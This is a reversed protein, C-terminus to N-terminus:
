ALAWWVTAWLAGAAVAAIALRLEIGAVLLSFAKSPHRHAM